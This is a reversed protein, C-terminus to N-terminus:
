RAAPGSPSRDVSEQRALLDDYSGRLDLLDGVLDRMKERWREQSKRFLEPDDVEQAAIESQLERARELLHNTDRLLAGGPGPALKELPKKLPTDEPM